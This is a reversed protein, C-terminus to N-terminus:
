RRQRQKYLEWQREEEINLQKQQETLPVRGYKVDNIAKEVDERIARHKREKEREKDARTQFSQAVTGTEYYGMEKYERRLASRSDHIRDSGTMSMIPEIEDTIVAPANVRKREEEYPVLTRTESNYVFSGREGTPDGVGKSIMRQGVEKLAKQLEDM